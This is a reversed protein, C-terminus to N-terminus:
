ILHRITIMFPKIQTLLCANMCYFQRLVKPSNASQFVEHLPLQM